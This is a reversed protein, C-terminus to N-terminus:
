AFVGIPTDSYRNPSPLNGGAADHDFFLMKGRLSNHFIFSWTCICRQYEVSVEKMNETLSKMKAEHQQILLRCDDLEKQASELKEKSEAQDSDFFVLPSLQSETVLSPLM